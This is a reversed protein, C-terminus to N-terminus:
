ILYYIFFYNDSFSFINTSNLSSKCFKCLFFKVESYSTMEWFLLFSSPFFDFDFYTIPDKKRRRRRRRLDCCYVCFRSDWKFITTPVKHDERKVNKEANITNENKYRITGWIHIQSEVTDKLLSRSGKKKKFKM